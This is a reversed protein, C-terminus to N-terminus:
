ETLRRPPPEDEASESPPLEPLPLTGDKANVAEVIARVYRFIDQGMYTQYADVTKADMTEIYDIACRSCLSIHWGDLLPIRWIIDPVGECHACKTNGFRKHTLNKAM